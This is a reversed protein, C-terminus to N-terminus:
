GLWTWVWNSLKHRISTAVKSPEKQSKRVHSELMGGTRKVERRWTRGTNQQVWPSEWTLGKSQSLISGGKQIQVAAVPHFGGDQSGRCSVHLWPLVLWANHNTNFLPLSTEWVQDVRRRLTASTKSTHSAWCLWKEPKLSREYPAAWRILKNRGNKSHGISSATGPAELLSLAGCLM